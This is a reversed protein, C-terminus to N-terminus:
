WKSQQLFHNFNYWRQSPNGCNTVCKEPKYEGRYDCTDSCGNTDAIQSPWYRGLSNGNVWAHGKGMGQLDVVVPSTGPPIKFSTQACSCCCSNTELPTSSSVWFFFVSSSWSMYIVWHSLAFVKYWKMPKGIPLKKSTKWIHAHPSNPDYLRKAEGNLGVKLVSFWLIDFAILWILM